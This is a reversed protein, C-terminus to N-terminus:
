NNYIGRVLELLKEANNLNYSQMIAYLRSSAIQLRLKADDIRNRYARIEDISSLIKRKETRFEDSIVPLPQLFQEIGTYNDQELANINDCQGFALMISFLLLNIKNNM